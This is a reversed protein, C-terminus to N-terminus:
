QQLMQRCDDIPGRKQKTCAAYCRKAQGANGMGQYAAGLILWAEGDGSDLAVSREGAAVASGYAERELLAKADSKEQLATKAPKDASAASASPAASAVTDASGSAAVGASTAGSASPAPTDMDIPAATDVPPPSAIPPPPIPDPAHTVQVAPTPEDKPRLMSVVFCLALIAAAAIVAGKVYRALHARRAQAEATMKRAHKPDVVDFGGSLGSTPRHSEGAAFFHDDHEDLDVPPVSIDDIDPSSAFGARAAKEAEKKEELKQELKDLKADLQAKPLAAKPLPPAVSVKRQSARELSPERTTAPLVRVRDGKKKKKTSKKKSVPAAAASAPPPTASLVDVPSPTASLVDVPSPTASVDIPPAAPTAETTEELKALLAEANAESIAPTSPPSPPSAASAPAATQSTLTTTFDVGSKKKRKKEM